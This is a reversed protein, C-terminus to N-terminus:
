EESKLALLKHRTIRTAKPNLTHTTPTTATVMKTNTTVMTDAM